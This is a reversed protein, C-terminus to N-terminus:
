QTYAKEGRLLRDLMDAVPIMANKVETSTNTQAGAEILMSRGKMHLCYRYANIYINRLLGPYYAEGLLYMQLSMALNDDRNANYLYGIDGKAKSYSIGNFFMVKSMTVGNEETVLRTTDPVGDRHLDIVVEISPNEELIKAVNEEAYTYAEKQNSDPIGDTVRIKFKQGAGKMSQYEFHELGYEMLKKTDEWKYSRNNPWGCALLAVIFTRKERKLAGVYCYGAEGTFGTKGSVAGEMMTLFANHNICSYTQTQELDSFQYSSVGTIELFEKRKPSEMVCYRMIRALEEATTRHSGGDDAGDLGNPTVFHTHSLGLERAKQNMEDAFQEVSGALHEALMVATDNHSELMLSYLLDKLKFKQGEVTGLRDRPQAAANASVSVSEDPDARELALICTMIKTTSAMPRETEANKAFLIRGSDADMLVASRAYLQGPTNEGYAIKTQEEEAYVCSVPFLGNVAILLCFGLILGVRYTRGRERRKEHM